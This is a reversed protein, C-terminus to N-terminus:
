ACARGAVQTGKSRMIRWYVRLRALPALPASVMTRFAPEKVGNLAMVLVALGARGPNVDAVAFACQM